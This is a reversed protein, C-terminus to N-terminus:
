KYSKYNNRGNRKRAHEEKSWNIENTQQFFYEFGSKKPLEGFLASLVPHPWGGRQRAAILLRSAIGQRAARELTAATDVALLRVSDALGLGGKPAPLHEKWTDEMDM